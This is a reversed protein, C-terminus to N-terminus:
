ITYLPLESALLASAILQGRLLANTLIIIIIEVTTELPIRWNYFKIDRETTM